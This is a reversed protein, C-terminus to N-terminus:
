REGYPHANARPSSCAIHVYVPKSADACMASSVASGRLCAGQPTTSDTATEPTAPYTSSIASVPAIGLMGATSCALSACPWCIGATIAMMCDPNPVFTPLEMDASADIAIHNQPNAAM